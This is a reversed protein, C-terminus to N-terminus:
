SAAEAANFSELISQLFNDRTGLWFAKYNREEKLGVRIAIGSM